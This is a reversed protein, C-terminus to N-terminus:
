TLNWKEKWKGQKWRLFMCIARVCEDLAMSFYAGIVMWGIRIGLVYTGAVACVYMFIAAIVTTFIADGSVKLANGFVLNTVRGIELIIDIFLLKKVLAIMQLDDTFLRMIWDATVAFVSAIGIATVIGIVAARKTNKDCAKLNGAGLSWGAMIANAQALAAGVCYSFNTIQVTYSRATMNIGERDMQNLFRIVLTMAVNYLATELASPLGIQIIKLFIKRNEMREKEKIQILRRSFFIVGLLNVFKSIITAVAVGAVGMDLVFLFLSNLCLNLINGVAAAFFPKKTYGFARLYGSYIPILANLISFAGIIKLYTQAPEMLSDAVGVMQLINGSFFYLFVSMLIGVGLNFYLGIQKTQYAIGMKGAGIYVTMVAVMGTSIVSFMIIFMSIYTNVTGVAGVAKDSVSSLMLTDVAGTLISCLIELCIPPFLHKLSKRENEM